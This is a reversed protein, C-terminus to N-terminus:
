MANLMWYDHIMEPLIKVFMNAPIVALKQELLESPLILPM